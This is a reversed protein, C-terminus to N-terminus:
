AFRPRLARRRRWRRRPTLATATARLLEVADATPVFPNAIVRGDALSLAAVVEGDVTAVVTEGALETADDLEALRRLTAAEDSHAFRVTAAPVETAAAATRRRRGAWLGLEGRRAGVGAGSEAARGVLARPGISIRSTSTRPWHM